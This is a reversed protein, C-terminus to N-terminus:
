SYLIYGMAGAALLGLAIIFWDSGSYKKFVRPNEEKNDLKMLQELEQHSLSGKQALSNLLRKRIELYQRRTLLGNTYSKVLMRLPTNSLIM